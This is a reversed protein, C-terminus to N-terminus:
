FNARIGLAYRPGTDQALLFQNSYRGHKLTEEGTINTGEFFVTLNETVDYSGSFDFQHYDRVFTPETGGSPQSLSQLFGDRQNYALRLQLGYKEYYAVLNKSNSLGTLAFSQSLNNIDLEADSDVLTLNAMVGFGSDGFNHQVALEFGAVSTDQGNDPLSLTFQALTDNVDAATSDDGTSPDTVGSYTVTRHASVIFNEVNKRFYGASLYSVEDYYWEVSLDINDAEFPNLASNGSSSNLIGGPRTAGISVAPAMQSLTPRTLSKSYAFRAIVDDNVELNFNINPLLNSYDSSESLPTLGEYVPKFATPDQFVLGTLTRQEGSVKVKTQSYRLGLNGSWPMDGIEGEFDANVYLETVDEEVIYAQQPLLNDYTFNSDASWNAGGTKAQTDLFAFMNAPDHQLWQTPVTGTLGNLFSAGADFTSFYEDPVNVLTNYCFADEPGCAQAGNDFNQIDKEQATSLLGFRLSMLAGLDIDYHGDLKLQTVKDEVHSGSHLMVNTMLNAPNLYHEVTRGEGGGKTITGEKDFDALSPLTNGQSHDWSVKNWYGVNSMTNANGQPDILDSMSSSFDVNLALKDNVQWDANLGFAKMESERDFTRAHFDTAGNREEDFSVITGNEDLLVNEIDGANFWHGMSSSRTEVEFKSYLVDASIEINDTPRYQLVLTGGTRSREDFVVRHDYNQPFFTNKANDPNTIESVPIDGNAVWNDVQAEDSRGSTKQHSFSFLAGFTDDAFTNSLLGSLQPSTDGSNNDYQAKASGVAKFQGLAFPKATQINVTSGIGGSPLASSSTKHIDVGSVLEAAMIDFNFDRGTSDTAMQRGNVLVNNFEPGFGRVTIKQGEGGSRDISVGSIRQMSEALNQDPFKGIDEAAIADIVGSASRKVDMAKIMSGRIGKVEIVEVEDKNVEAFTTTSLMALLASCVALHVRKKNFIKTSM